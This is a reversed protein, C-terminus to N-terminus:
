GIRIWTARSVALVTGSVDFIVSGAFHKRRECGLSWGAVVLEHGVPVPARLEVTLQGLVAFTDVTFFGFGSPCDLAAWVIEPRVSGSGDDFEEAPTWTAAVAERGEVKGPFLGLGDKRGTGCVFCTAAPHSDRWIYNDTAKSAEEISVPDIVDLDVSVPEAEAIIDDGDRVSLTEGRRELTLPTDVPVPRRLTVRTRGPLLAALRGAVYGGNGATEPYGNFRSDIQITETVTPFRAM